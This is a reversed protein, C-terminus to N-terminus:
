PQNLTLSLRNSLNGLCRVGPVTWTLAVTGKKLALVVDGDDIFVDLISLVMRCYDLLYILKERPCAEAVDDLRSLLVPPLTYEQVVRVIYEWTATEPM